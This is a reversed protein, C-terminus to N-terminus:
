NGNGIPLSEVPTSCREADCLVVQIFQAGAAGPILHRDVVSGGKTWQSTPLTGDVPVGRHTGLTNGGGDLATVAIEYDQAPKDVARWYLVVRLDNGQLETRYGILSFLDELVLGTKQMTNLYLSPTGYLRLRFNGVQWDKM